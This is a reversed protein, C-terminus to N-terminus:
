ASTLLAPRTTARDVLSRLATTPEVALDEALLAHFARYEAIADRLNGEGLYAAILARRSSERYPDAEVAALGIEVAAAYRGRHVYRDVLAELAHLRLHHFRVREVEVWDDVGDPLLEDFLLGDIEGVAPCHEEDLLRRALAVADRFDCTVNPGLALRGDEALRLPSGAKGLKWLETRLSAAAHAESSEPWLTGAVVGRPLPRGKLAVLTVLRQGAVTVPISTGGRRWEFGGLLGVRGPAGPVNADRTEGPDMRGRAREAM